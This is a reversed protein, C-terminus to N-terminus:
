LFPVCDLMISMWHICQCVGFAQRTHKHGGSGLMHSTEGYCMCIVGLVYLCAPSCVHTPSSPFMPSADLVGPHGFLLAGCGGIVHLYGRSCISACPLLPSMHTKQVYPPMQVYLPTQVYPLHGFMPPYISM